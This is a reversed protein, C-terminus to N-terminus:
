GFGKPPSTSRGTLEDLLSCLADRAPMDMNLGAETYANAAHSSVKEFVEELMLMKALRLQFAASMDAPLRSAQVKQM